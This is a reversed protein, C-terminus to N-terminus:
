GNEAKKRKFEELANVSVWPIDMNYEYILSDGIQYYHCWEPFALRFRPSPPNRVCMTDGDRPGGSFTVTVSTEKKTINKKKRGM